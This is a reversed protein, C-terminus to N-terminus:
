ALTQPASDEGAAAVSKQELVAPTGGFCLRVLHAPADSLRWFACSAGSPPTPFLQLLGADDVESEAEGPVGITQLVTTEDQGKHIRGFQEATMEAAAQGSVSTVYGGADGGGNGGFAVGLGVAVVLLGLVSWAIIARRRQRRRYLERDM